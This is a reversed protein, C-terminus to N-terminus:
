AKVLTESTGVFDSMLTTVEPLNKGNALNVARVQVKALLEVRLVENTIDFFLYIFSVYKNM